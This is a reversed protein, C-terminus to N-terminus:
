GYALRDAKLELALAIAEAEGPHLEVMLLSVLSPDSVAHSKLWGRRSAEAIANRATADPVNQLEEEVANPIWVKQFQDLLLDLRGVLALNSIPSTNSVAPMNSTKQSSRTAM